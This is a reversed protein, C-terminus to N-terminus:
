LQIERSSFPVRRAPTEPDAKGFGERTGRLMDLLTNGGEEPQQAFAPLAAAGALSCILLAVCFRALPFRSVVM